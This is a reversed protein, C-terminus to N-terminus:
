DVKIITAPIIEVIRHNKYVITVNGFGSNQMEEMQKIVMGLKGSDISTTFFVRFYDSLTAEVMTKNIDCDNLM